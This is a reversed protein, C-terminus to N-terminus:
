SSITLFATSQADRKMTQFESFSYFVFLNLQILKIQLGIVNLNKMPSSGVFISGYLYTRPKIINYTQLSYM